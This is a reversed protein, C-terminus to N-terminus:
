ICVLGTCTRRCDGMGGCECRQDRCTTMAPCAERCGGCHANDGNTDVCETGCCTSTATGDCDPGTTGCRCAGEICDEGPDCRNGCAGCNLEDRTTDVCGGPCEVFSCGAACMFGDAGNPVCASEPATCVNDCTGCSEPSRLDCGADTGGDLGGSDGSTVCFGPEDPALGPPRFCRAGASCQGMADCRHPNADPDVSCAALTVAAGVLLSRM